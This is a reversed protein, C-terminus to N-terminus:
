DKINKKRSKLLFHSTVKEKMRYLKSHVVYAGYVYTRIYAHVIKYLSLVPDTMEREKRKVIEGWVHVYTRVYM